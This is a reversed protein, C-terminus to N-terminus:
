TKMFTATSCDLSSMAPSFLFTEIVSCFSKWHVCAITSSCDTATPTDLPVPLHFFRMSFDIETQLKQKTALSVAIPPTNLSSLKQHPQCLPLTVPPFLKRTQELNKVRKENCKETSAAAVHFCVKRQVEEAANFFHVSFLKEAKKTSQVAAMHRLPVSKLM